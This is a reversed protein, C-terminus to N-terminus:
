HRLISIRRSRTVVVRRAALSVTTRPPPRRPEPSSARIRAVSCSKAHSKCWPSASTVAFEGLIALVAPVRCLRRAARPLPHSVAALEPSRVPAIRHVLEIGFAGYDEEGAQAVGSSRWSSPITASRSFPPPSRARPNQSPATHISAALTQPPFGWLHLRRRRIFASPDRM